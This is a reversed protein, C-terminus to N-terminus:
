AFPDKWHASHKHSKVKPSAPRAKTAGGSEFPDQSSDDGAPRTSPAHRGVGGHRARSSRPMVTASIRNTSLKTASLKTRRAASPAAENAFPDQWTSSKVAPAASAAVAAPAERAAPASEPTDRAVIESQHAAQRAVEAAPAAQQRRAQLMAADPIAPRRNHSREEESKANAAAIAKLTAERAAAEASVPEAEAPKRVTTKIAQQQDATALLQDVSDTRGGKSPKPAISAAKDQKAKALLEDVDDNSVAVRKSPKGDSKLLKDVFADDHKEVPKPPPPAEEVSPVERSSPAKVDQRQAALAAERDKRERDVKDLKEQKERRATEDAQLKQIKALDIKKTTNPGLVQNEWDMQKQFGDDASIEAASKKSDTGATSKTKPASWGSSPWLLALGLACSLRVPSRM